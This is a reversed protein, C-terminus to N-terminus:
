VLSFGSIFRERGLMLLLHLHGQSLLLLWGRSPPSIDMLRVVTQLSVHYIPEFDDESLTRQYLVSSTQHKFFYLPISRIFLEQNQM